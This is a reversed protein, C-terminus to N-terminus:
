LTSIDKFPFCTLASDKTCNYIKLDPNVKPITEYQKILGEFTSHKRLPKPYEGDMDSLGEFYHRGGDYSMDYGCLYFETCGYHVALGLAQYGSSHGYHIYRKSTSLGDSWRGEIHKYGYKKCISKDWHWKDFNGKVPSYIEHWKPDCACWVDLPFDEFTNNVGFLLPPKDDLGSLLINQKQKNLSPGTGLIIAKM